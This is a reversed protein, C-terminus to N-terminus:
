SRFATHSQAPSYSGSIRQHPETGYLTRWRDKLEKVSLVTLGAIEQALKKRDKGLIERKM